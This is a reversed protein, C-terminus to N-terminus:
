SLEERLALTFHGARTNHGHKIANYLQGNNIGFHRAAKSISDFTRGSEIHVVPTAKHNRSYDGKVYGHEIAEAIRSAAYDSGHNRVWQGITGRGIGTIRGWQAVTRTTGNVTLQVSVRRNNINDSRTVYRCNDPSYGGDNDIRDLDLGKEWGANLAWALFPEFELWEDCVTIGRGGYNHYASCNPNLCRQKIAKWCWYIEVYKQRDTM